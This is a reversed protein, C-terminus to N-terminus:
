DIATKTEKIKEELFDSKISARLEDNAIVRLGMRALARAGDKLCKRTRPGGSVERAFERTHHTLAEGESIDIEAQLAPCRWSVNGVDSSGDPQYNYRFPVGIEQLIGGLALEAAPNPLMNDFAAENSEWSVTTGTAIAAGRACDFVREMESYLYEKQPARFYFLASAKEPVINPAAGGDTIIGHIQLEPKSHQRLMDLATMFLQVGYLANRGKWPASSAHAPRGTFTFKYCCIALARYSPSTFGGNIHFMLAIDADDFIGADSMVVKAGNTEEAPTGVIRIEAKIDGLNKALAAGALISMAGHLNHGCAHGIEPLADYEVLFVVVPGSGKGWVANFATPMGLYPYEVEFGLEKLMAVIKASAKFEEEGLEPNAAIWDSLRGYEELHEVIFDDLNQEARSFSM